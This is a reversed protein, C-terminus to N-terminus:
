MPPAHLGLPFAHASLQILIFESSFIFMSHQVMLCVKLESFTLGSSKKQYHFSLFTFKKFHAIQAFRFFASRFCCCSVLISFSRGPKFWPFVLESTQTIQRYSLEGDDKSSTVSKHLHLTILASLFTVNCYSATFCSSKLCLM